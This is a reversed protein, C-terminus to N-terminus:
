HTAGPSITPSSSLLARDRRFAEVDESCEACRCVHASVRWRDLPGLDGGSFLALVSSDPHRVASM